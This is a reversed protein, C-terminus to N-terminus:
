FSRTRVTRNDAARGSFADVSQTALESPDHARGGRARGEVPSDGAPGAPDPWAPGFARTPSHQEVRRDPDRIGISGSVVARVRAAVAVSRLMTTVAPAPVPFVVRKTLRRNCRRSRWGSGGVMPSITPSVNVFLAALSIFSRSRASSLLSPSFSRARFAKRSNSFLWIPVM